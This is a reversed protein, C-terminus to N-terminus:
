KENKMKMEELRYGPCLEDMAQQIEQRYRHVAPGSGAGGYTLCYLLVPERGAVLFAPNGSDGVVIPKRFLARRPDKTPVRSSMMTPAAKPIANLETVLAQEHQNFTVVPLGAGDGILDEYDAPLIRAPHVNPTVEYNLAGIMIDTGAIAKTAKIRLPCVGGNDGVFVIRTGETLPYHKAFIVHRRSILTGARLRGFASNWPSACSWDVDRAWFNTNAVFTDKPGNAAYDVFRSLAVAPDTGELRLDVSASANTM